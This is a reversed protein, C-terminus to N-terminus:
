ASGPIVLQATFLLPHSTRVHVTSSDFENSTSVLGGMKLKQENLDWHLGKTSVRECANGLPILGCVTGIPFNLICNKDAPLLIAVNEEDYLALSLHLYKYLAHFSAMEQDLRGGLAGYIHIFKESNNKCDQEDDDDEDLSQKTLGLLIQQISKDLDNYDQDPAYIVQSGASIYYTKIEDKLSDLDGCIIEPVKTKCYNYLRNAGGDACVRVTSSCRSWLTEFVEGGTFTPSNLIILSEEKINNDDDLKKESSFLLPSTLQFIPSSMADKKKSFYDSSSTNDGEKTAMRQVIERINVRKNSEILFAADASFNISIGFSISVVWFFCLLTFILYHSFWWILM